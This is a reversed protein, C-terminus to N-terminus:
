PQFGLKDLKLAGSSSRREVGQKSRLAAKKTAKKPDNLQYSVVGKANLDFKFFYVNGATADLFLENYESDTKSIDILIKEFLFNVVTGGLYKNKAYNEKASTDKNVMSMISKPPNQIVVDNKTMQAIVKNMDQKSVGPVKNAYYTSIATIPGSIVNSSDLIEFTKFVKSDKWKTYLLDDKKVLKVVDSPKLTNTGGKLQKNSFLYEKKGMKIKFDFLSETQSSSFYCQATSNLRSEPFLNHEYVLIPGICEAYYNKIEGIQASTIGKINITDGSKADLIANLVPIIKKNSLGNVKKRVLSEHVSIKRYEGDLGLESPKLM